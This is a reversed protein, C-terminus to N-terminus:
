PHIRQQTETPRSPTIQTVRVALLGGSTGLVGRAFEHGDVTVSLTGDIPTGLPIVDGNELALLESLPIEIEGLRASLEVDVDSLHLPPDSPPPASEGEAAVRALGPLYISLESQEDGRSLQLDFALRHPDAHDDAESWTGMTGLVRVPRVDAPEVDSASAVASVLTSLFGAVLDIELGSLARDAVTPSTGCLLREVARVASPCDWVAWGIQGGVTFRTLALPEALGERVTDAHVERLGLLKVDYTSGLAESVDHGLRFLGIEFRRRIATLRAAGLRLPKGFDREVVDGSGQAPAAGTLSALEEPDVKAV